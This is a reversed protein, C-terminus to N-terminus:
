LWWEWGLLTWAKNVSAWYDVLVSTQRPLNLPFGRPPILMGSPGLSPWNELPWEACSLPCYEIGMSWEPIFLCECM